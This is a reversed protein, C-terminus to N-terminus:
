DSDESDSSELFKNFDDNKSTMSMKDEIHDGRKYYNNIMIVGKQENHWEAAQDLGIIQNQQNRSFFPRFISADIMYVIRKVTLFVPFDENKMQHMSHPINLNKEMEEVDMMENELDEMEDERVKLEEDDAKVTEVMEFKLDKVDKGEEIAKAKAKRKQDRKKLENIIRDRLSTYFRRIENTLVPSATM